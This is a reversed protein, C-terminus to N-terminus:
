REPQWAEGGIPLGDPNQLFRNRRIRPSLQLEVKFVQLHFEFTLKHADVAPRYKEISARM